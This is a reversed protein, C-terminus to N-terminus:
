SLLFYVNAFFFRFWFRFLFFVFYFCFLIFHCTVKKAIDPHQEWLKSHDGWDGKWEFVGWPNRLRVMKRDGFEYAAKM